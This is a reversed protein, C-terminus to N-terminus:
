HSVAFYEILKFMEPKEDDSLRCASHAFCAANLAIASESETIIISEYEIVKQLFRKQHTTNRDTSDLMGIYTRLANGLCSRQALTLDGLHWM